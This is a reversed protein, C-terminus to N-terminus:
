AVEAVEFPQVTGNWADQEVSCTLMGDEWEKWGEALAREYAAISRQYNRRGYERLRADMAPTFRPATEVPVPQAEYAALAAREHALRQDLVVRAARQALEATAYVGAIVTSRSSYEGEEYYGVWVRM